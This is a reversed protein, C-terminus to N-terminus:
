DSAQNRRIFTYTEELLSITPNSTATTEERSEILPSSSPQWRTLASTIHASQISPSPLSSHPLPQSSQCLFFVFSLSGLRVRDGDKLLVSQRVQEGNVYTGNSSKLDILHFGSQKPSEIYQIAAHARSLRQDPITINSQLPNRGIVWTNQHQTLAQTTGQLLNTVLHIQSSLLVGQVYPITVGALTKSGGNELSLIEDLLERHHEYLKLFVQYLGLRQQLDGDESTEMLGSAYSVWRDTGVM